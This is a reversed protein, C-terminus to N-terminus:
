DELVLTGARMDVRDLQSLFTMGLLSVHLAGPESVMGRVDRVTIDGISIEDITVPAVRATGNATSSRHTFDKDTIFVGAREADEYTLAVMTAGTDVLVEIERGNVEVNTVYHGSADAKLEITYGSKPSANQGAAGDPGSPDGSAVALNPDPLNLVTRAIAKLDDFFIITGVCMMAVIGWSIVEGLLSRTGSSLSM